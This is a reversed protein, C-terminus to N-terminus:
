PAAQFLPYRNESFVMGLYFSPAPHIKSSFEDHELLRAPVPPTARRCHLPYRPNIGM